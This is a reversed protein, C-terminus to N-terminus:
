AFVDGSRPPLKLLSALFTYPLNRDCMAFAFNSKLPKSLSSHSSIRSVLMRCTKALSPADWRSAASCCTSHIISSADEHYWPTFSVFSKTRKYRSTRFVLPLPQSRNASSSATLAFTYSNKSFCM